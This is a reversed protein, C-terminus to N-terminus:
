KSGFTKREIRWVENIRRKIIIKYNKQILFFFNEERKGTNIDM